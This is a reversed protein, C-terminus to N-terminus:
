GVYTDAEPLFQTVQAQCGPLVCGLFLLMVPWEKLRQLM